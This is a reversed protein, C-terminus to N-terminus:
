HQHKHKHHKHKHHKHKQHKHRHTHVPHHSHGPHTRVVCSSVMVAGCFLLIALVFIM